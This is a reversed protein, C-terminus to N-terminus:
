CYYLVSNLKDNILILGNGTIQITDISQIENIQFEGCKIGEFDLIKITKNGPIYIVIKKDNTINVINIYDLYNSSYLSKRYIGDNENLIKLEHFNESFIYGNSIFFNGEPKMYYNSLHSHYQGFSDLHVLNDDFVSVFPEKKTFVFLKNNEYRIATPHNNLNLSQHQKLNFLDLSFLCTINKDRGSVKISAQYTIYIFKDGLCM